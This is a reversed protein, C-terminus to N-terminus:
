LYKQVKRMNKPKMKISNHFFQILIAVSLNNEYLTEHATTLILGQNLLNKESNNTSCFLILISENDNGNIINIFHVLQKSLVTLHIKLEIISLM